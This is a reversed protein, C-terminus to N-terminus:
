KVKPYQQIWHLNLDEDFCHIYISHVQQLYEIRPVFKRAIKSDIIFIFREYSHVSRIYEECQDYQEFIKLHNILIRLEQQAKTTKEVNHYYPDLWILSYIELNSDDKSSKNHTTGM